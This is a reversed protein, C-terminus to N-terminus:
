KGYDNEQEAMTPCRKSKLKSAESMNSHYKKFSHRAKFARIENEAEWLEIQKGKKKFAAVMQQPTAKPHSFLWRDTRTEGTLGRKVFAKLEESMQSAICVRAYASFPGTSPKYSLVAQWLALFGRGILDDFAENAFEKGGKRFSHGIRRKGAYSVILRHYNKALQDSAKRDGAKARRVLDADGDSDPLSHRWKYRSLNNPSEKLISIRVPRCKESRTPYIKKRPPKTGHM